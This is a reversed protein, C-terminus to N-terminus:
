ELDSLKIKGAAIDAVDADSSAVLQEMVPILKDPSEGYAVLVDGFAVCLVEDILIARIPDHRFLARMAKHKCTLLEVWAAARKYATGDGRAEAAALIEHTRCKPESTEM